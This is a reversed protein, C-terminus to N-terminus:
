APHCSADIIELAVSGYPRRRKGFTEEVSRLPLMSCLGDNGVQALWSCYIMQTQFARHSFTASAVLVPLWLWAVSISTSKQVRCQTKIYPVPNRAFAEIYFQGHAVMAKMPKEQELIIVM